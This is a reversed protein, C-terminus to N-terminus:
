EAKDTASLPKYRANEVRRVIAGLQEPTMDLLRLWQRRELQETAQEAMDFARQIVDKVSMVDLVARGASDEEGRVKGTVVGWKEILTLAIRGQLAMVLGETAFRLDLDTNPWYDKM